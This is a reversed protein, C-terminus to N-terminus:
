AQGYTREDAPPFLHLEDALGDAVLARVLTASGSM